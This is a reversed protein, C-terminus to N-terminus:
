RFAAAHERAFQEFSTPARGTIDQVTTSMAAAKGSRYYRYLDIVLDAYDSPVGSGTLTAKAAEDSVPVYDVQRGLVRALIAATEAYSLAEPGTLAYAKGVHRDSTLAEAVVRAIDRVDIHSIRAEGAPQFLKGTARISGSLHTIFNQMFGTPRVFTWGIGSAEIAREIPRHIQRAFAYGEEDAAWVSLKVLRAVGATRAAQVVNTEAAVQGAGGAGVLFVAEAGALPSALTEPRTFDLTVADEGAAKAATAKATSHYATRPVLGRAELERVVASGVTGSAGTVVIM